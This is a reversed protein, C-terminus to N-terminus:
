LEALEEVRLPRSAAALCQFIHPLPTGAQKMSIKRSANTHRMPSEPLEELAPNTRASLASPVGAPFIGM